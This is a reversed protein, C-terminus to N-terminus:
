LGRGRLGHESAPFKGLSQPREALFFVNTGLPEMLVRYRISRGAASAHADRGNLPALRYSGDGAPRLQTQDIPIRGPEGDFTSLAIGRWKLDYAGQLDNEIEIHMVVANSQQIQGIRGLQVRDSFGTSVDSTPTYASLFRSSVRPLLFFILFSGALIMLMLAPAIALLAYAMRQTATPARAGASGSLRPDQAHTSESAVSHRMEMLVFHHGCGAPLVCFFAPVRQRGYAGRRGAGHLFSLVALMYHDRTRQLSFLRVVM